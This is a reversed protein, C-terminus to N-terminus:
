QAGRDLLAEMGSGCRVLDIDDLAAALAVVRVGLGGDGVNGGAHGGQREDAVLGLQDVARAVGVRRM